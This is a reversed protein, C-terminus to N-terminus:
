AAIMPFPLIAADSKPSAPDVPAVAVLVRLLDRPTVARGQSELPASDRRCEVHGLVGLRRAHRDAPQLSRDPPPSDSDRRRRPMNQSFM